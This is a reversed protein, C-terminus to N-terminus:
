EGNEVQTRKFSKSNKMLKQKPLRGQLQQRAQSLIRKDADHWRAMLRGDLEFVAPQTLNHHCLIKM